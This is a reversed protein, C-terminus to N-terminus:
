KVVPTIELSETASEPPSNLTLLGNADATVLGSLSGSLQYMGNPRGMVCLLPVNQGTNLTHWGMRLTDSARDYHQSLINLDWGSSVTGPTHYAQYLPILACSDGTFDPVGFALGADGDLAEPCHYAASQAAYARLLNDALKQATQTEGADLLAKWLLWNQGFRVAGEALATPHYNLAAKSMSRIGADSWFLAPDSLRKLLILRRAPPVTGSGAILPLLGIEADDKESLPMGNVAKAAYTDHLDDWLTENLASTAAVIDRKYQATDSEPQQTEEAMLRLIKAARIVYASYDPAFARSSFESADQKPGGASMGALALDNRIPPAPWAFLARGADVRGAATMERYRRKAYPYFRTLMARDHTKQFLEWLAFLNMPPAAQPNTPPTLLGNTLFCANLQAASWDQRYGSWGLAMWGGNEMQYTAAANDPTDRRSAAGVRRLNNEPINTLSQAMLRDIAENGSNLRAARHANAARTALGDGKRRSGDQLLDDCQALLAQAADSAEGGMKGVGVCLSITVTEGPSVSIDDVRLLGWAGKIKAQKAEKHNATEAQTESFEPLLGCPLAAGAASRSSMAGELSFYAGSVRYSRQPFATADSALAFVVDAKKSKITVNESDASDREVTLDTSAAEPSGADLGGLLDVFYTQPLAGRNTLSVRILLGDGGPSVNAPFYSVTTEGAGWASPPIIKDDKDPTNLVTESLSAPAFTGAASWLLGSGDAERLRTWRNWANAADPSLPRDDEWAQMPSLGMLRRELAMRETKRRAKGNKAPAADRLVTEIRRQGVVIPFAFLTGQMRDALFCPGSHTRSFPGWPSLPLELASASRELATIPRHSPNKPAIPPPATQAAAAFTLALLSATFLVTKIM